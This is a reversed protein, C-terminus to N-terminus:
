QVARVLSSLCRVVNIAGVLFADECLYKSGTRGNELGKQESIMFVYVIYDDWRRWM